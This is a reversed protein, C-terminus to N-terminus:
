GDQWRDSEALKSKSSSVGADTGVRYTQADCTDSGTRPSITESALKGLVTGAADSHLPSAVAGITALTSDVATKVSPKMASIIGFDPMKQVNPTSKAESKPM